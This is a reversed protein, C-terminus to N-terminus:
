ATGMASSTLSPANHNERLGAAKRNIGEKWVRLFVMQNNVVLIEGGARKLTYAAVEIRDEWAKKLVRAMSALLEM